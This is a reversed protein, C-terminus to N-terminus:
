EDAEVGKVDESEDRDTEVGQKRSGWLSGLFFLLPPVGGALIGWIVFGVGSVLLNSTLALCVMLFSPSALFASAVFVFTLLPWVNLFLSLLVLAAWGWAILAPDLFAWLAEQVCSFKWQKKRAHWFGAAAYFALLVIEALAYVWFYPLLTSLAFLVLGLAFGIGSIIFHTKAFAVLRMERRTKDWKPTKLRIENEM